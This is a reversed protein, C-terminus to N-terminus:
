IPPYLGLAQLVRRGAQLTGYKVELAAFRSAFRVAEWPSMGGLDPTEYGLEGLLDGAIRQFLRQDAATMEERWRGVRKTNPPQRVPAHFDNPRLRERGLRHPEAMEPVYPESLFDCLSRLETEADGVLREYRLEYYQDAGLRAGSARAQRIRRRWNHAAFCIDIHFDRQGWKELMSLAADRGDRIIHVFQAQPFICQILDIYSTYIPTKDGWRVAGRQQAYAGYLTDLFAAPTRGPMANLFAQPSPRDGQWEKVFRYRTFTTELLRAIREESLEGEPDRGFYYPIFDSEPPIYIRPSSNLMFRLLTTGSRHVAVILIPRAVGSM